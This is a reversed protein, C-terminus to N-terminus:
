RMAVIKMLSGGGGPGDASSVSSVSIRSSSRLRETQVQPESNSPPGGAVASPEIDLRHGDQDVPDARGPPVSRAAVAGDGANAM